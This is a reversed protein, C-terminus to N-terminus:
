NRTSFPAFKFAFDSMFEARGTPAIADVLSAAHARIMPELGKAVHPALLPNILRRYKAHEPADLNIPILSM